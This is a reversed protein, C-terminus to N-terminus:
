LFNLSSCHEDSLQTPTPKAGIVNLVVTRQFSFLCCIYFMKASSLSSKHYKSRIKGSITHTLMHMHASVHMFKQDHM